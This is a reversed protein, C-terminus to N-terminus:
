IKPTFTISATSIDVGNDQLFKLAEAKYQKLQQLYRTRDSPGNILAYLTVNYEISNDSSQSYDIRYHSNDVPLKDLIPYKNQLTQQQESVQDSLITERLQQEQPHKNLWDIGEQSQPDLLLYIKEDGQKHTNFKKTVASFYQRSATLTHKGPSVYITGTGVTKNDLTITADSPIAQVVIKDLGQRSIILVMNWIMLVAILLIAGIIIRRKDMYM